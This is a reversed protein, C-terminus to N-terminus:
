DISAKSPAQAVRNQFRIGIMLEHTGSSYNKLGSTILDYSYGLTLNEQFTFGAMLAIADSGNVFDTRYSGGAWIQDQYIARLTGEIQLPTPAAYKLMAAPQIEFSEGAAIKYGGAIYYHNILKSQTSAYDEFYQIKFPYVQPASVSFFLKDSYLYLGAGLDPLLVAAINADVSPDGSQNFITKSFDLAHQQLGAAIGLSLKLTETLRVHYAYSFNIGTRRFAGVIDTYVMGGVGMKENKLPGQLTFLYTRPADTIGIWQYRNNSRADFHNESGDVAPNLTYLNLLYQSYHPLQQAFAGVGLVLLSLLIITKKM